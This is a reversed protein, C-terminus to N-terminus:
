WKGINGKGVTECMQGVVQGESEDLASEVRLRERVRCGLNAAPGSMCASPGQAIKEAEWLIIISYGSLALILNDCTLLFM